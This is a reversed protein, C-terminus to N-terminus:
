HTIFLCGVVYEYLIDMFEDAREYREDHPIIQDLGMAKAGSDSFSTVINWGIRGDTIHDLSSWTRAM